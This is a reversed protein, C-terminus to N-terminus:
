EQTINGFISHIGKVDTILHGVKMRTLLTSAMGYRERELFDLMHTHSGVLIIRAVNHEYSLLLAIDESTGIFPLIKYDLGLRKIRQLGPTKGNPYAHVIRDQTCALCEDSVSDMDGIVINPNFGNERIVDAGGDVGVLVPQKRVVYPILLKFDDYTDIGRTVIVINKNHLSTALDIKPFPLSFMKKEEQAFRLTNDVFKTYLDNYKQLAREARERIDVSTVPKVYVSQSIDSFYIANNRVSIVSQMGDKLLAFVNTNSVVDLLLIGASILLNAGKAPTKSTMSQSFNVVALPRRRILEAAAIGDLQNHSIIAIHNYMLRKM